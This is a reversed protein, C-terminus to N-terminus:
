DFASLQAEKEAELQQIRAESQAMQLNFLEGELSLSVDVIDQILQQREEAAQQDSELLIDNKEQNSSIILDNIQKEIEVTSEGAAKTEALQLQLGSLVM